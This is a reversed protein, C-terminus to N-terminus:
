AYRRCNKSNSPGGKPLPWGTYVDTARQMGLETVRSEDNFITKDVNGLRVEDPQIYGAKVMLEQLELLDYKIYQNEQLFDHKSSANQLKFFQM